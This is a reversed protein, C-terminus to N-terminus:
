KINLATKIDALAKVANDGNAKAYDDWLPIAINRLAEKDADSAMVLELGDKELNALSEDSYQMMRETFTSQFENTVKTFADQVDQPLAKFADAM